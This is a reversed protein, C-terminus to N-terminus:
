MGYRRTDSGGHEKRDTAGAEGGDECGGRIVTKNNKFPSWAHEETFRGKKM